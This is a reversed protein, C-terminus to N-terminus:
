SGAFVTWTPVIDWIHWPPQWPLCHVQKAKEKLKQAGEQAAEAAENIRKAARMSESGEKGSRKAGSGTLAEKLKEGERAM